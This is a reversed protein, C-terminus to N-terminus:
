KLCGSLATEIGGYYRSVFDPQGILESGMPNIMVRPMGPLLNDPMEIEPNLIVCIPGELQSIEGYTKLGARNEEFDTLMGALPVGLRHELYQYADHTVVLRIGKAQMRAGLAALRDSAQTLTAVLAAENAQYKAANEPDAKGLTAAIEHAWGVMEGPDLWIHMDNEPRASLDFNRAHLPTSAREGLKVIKFDGDVRELWPELDFGVAFVIDAAQVASVQSPRLTFDHPEVDAPMLGDPTAVNQMVATVLETLPPLTAAVHPAAYAPQALCLALLLKRM